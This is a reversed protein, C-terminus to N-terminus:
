PRAHRWRVIGDDVDGRKADTDAPDPAHEPCFWRGDLPTWGHQSASVEIPDAAEYLLFTAACKACFLVMAMGILHASAAFFWSELREGPNEGSRSSNQSPELYKKGADDPVATRQTRGKFRRWLRM